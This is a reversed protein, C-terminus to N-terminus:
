EILGRLSQTTRSRAFRLGRLAKDQLECREEGGGCLQVCHMLQVEIPGECECQIVVSRVVNANTGPTTGGPRVSPGKDGEAAHALSADSRALLRSVAEESEGSFVKQAIPM